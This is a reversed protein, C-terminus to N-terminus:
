FGLKLGSSMDVPFNNYDFKVRIPSRTGLRLLSQQGLQLPTPPLPTSYTASRSDRSRSINSTLSLYKENINFFLFILLITFSLPDFLIRIDNIIYITHKM